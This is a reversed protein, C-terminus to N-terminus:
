REAHLQRQASVDMRSLRIAHAGGDEEGGQSGHERRGDGAGVAIVAVVVIVVSVLVFV